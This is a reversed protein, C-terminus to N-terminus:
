VKADEFHLLLADMAALTQDLSAADDQGRLTAQYFPQLFTHTHRLLYWDDDTLQNPLDARYRSLFLM